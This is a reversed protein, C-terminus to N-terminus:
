FDGSKFKRVWERCSPESLAHEGYAELLIRQSEAATKKLNFCFNKFIIILQQYNLIYPNRM